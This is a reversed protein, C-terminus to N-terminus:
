FILFFFFFNCAMFFCCCFSASFNFINCLKVAVNPKGSHQKKHSIRFLTTQYEEQTIGRDALQQNYPATFFGTTSNLPINMQSTQVM